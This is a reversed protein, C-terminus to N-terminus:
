VKVLVDSLWTVAQPRLNINKTGLKGEFDRVGKWLQIVADTKVISKESNESSFFLPRQTIKALLRFADATM